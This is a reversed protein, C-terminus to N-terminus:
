LSDVFRRKSDSVVKFCKVHDKGHELTIAGIPCQEVCAGCRICNDYIGEYSRPTPEFSATTVVSGFRGAMGRETILGKSLSFTGLGAVYAVHHESWNSYFTDNLDSDDMYHISMRSDLAPCVAGYGAPELLSVVYADVELVFAQGEIRGHLWELSAVDSAINSSRVRQTFPLFYSVVTQAGPLWDAPRLMGPGVIGPKALDDFLPDDFRAFGVLPEDFLKFDSLDPKIAKQSDIENGASNAVFARLSEVLEDSGLVRQAVNRDNANSTGFGPKVDM